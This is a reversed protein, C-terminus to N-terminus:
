INEAFWGHFCKPVASPLDSFECRGLETLTKADLVLLGVRNEQGVGGWVLSALIVGDDESHAEPSPVFIPESPYCNTEQWSLNTKNKVDIKVLSASCDGDTSIAYFFQYEKGRHESYNITPLECKADGLREPTCFVSGDGLLVASASRNLQGDFDKQFFENGFSKLNKKSLPLVFRIPTTLIRNYTDAEHVVQELSEIYLKQLISPDPSSCIDIVMSDDKEYQNIIHFFSFPESKFEHALEGTKRDILYFITPENSFWKFCKALPSHSLKSKMVAPVSVTWPQEVIIFFNETIGFTHMYSPHFKWRTPLKAVIEAKNFVDKNNPFRVINYHPGTKYLTLLVNYVTGDDMVHPHASHNLVTEFYKSLKVNQKTELTVPDIKHIVPFETLAYFEGNFPYISVLANDSFSDSFQFVSSVRKFISECPDPFSPTGFETVVIRKAAMNKKYSDSQLFRCQYTVKGKVINFRHILASADFFHNVKTDGVKMSGAGNRLLSGNIWSPIEGKVVGEIPKVIEEECSRTWINTKQEQKVGSDLSLESGLLRMKSIRTLTRVEINLRLTSLIFALSSSFPVVIELM